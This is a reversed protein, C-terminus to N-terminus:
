GRHRERRIEPLIAQLEPALEVGGGARVEAAVASNPNAVDNALAACIVERLNELPLFGHRRSYKAFLTRGLSEGNNKLKYVLWIWHGAPSGTQALAAAYSQTQSIACVGATVALKVDPHDPPAGDRGLQLVAASAADASAGHPIGSADLQAKARLIETHKLAGAAVWMTSTDILYVFANYDLGLSGDGPQFETGLRLTWDPNISSALNEWFAREKTM